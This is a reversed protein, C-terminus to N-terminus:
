ATALAADRLTSFPHTLDFGNWGKVIKGDQIEVWSIGNFKIPIGTARYGLGDGTHTMRVHWRAAVKNGEAIVDEVEVHIDSFNAHFHEVAAKFGEFGATKGVDPFDYVVVNPSLMEDLAAERYDNWVEDFWRHAFKRLDDSM